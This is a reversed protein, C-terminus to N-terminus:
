TKFLTNLLETKKNILEDIRTIYERVEKLNAAREIRNEEPFIVKTVADAGCAIITQSEEIMQINYIGEMGPISYGVNEMNGVMNKQRYMYYPEMNLSDALARSQSFMEIIENQHIETYSDTNIIKEYLRSGRKISLGHVTLNDPKLEYVKRCTNRVDQLDEYPLGIIIDMNINKFGLNRAMHFKEAVDGSSHSRGILKLTKDNMTQPNVSIRDVNYKKMSALKNITISDPRGCEVTFEELAHKTIFNDYIRKMVREFQGDSVSTPTGGGFYVCQVKLNNEAIYEMTRDLEYILADIYKEVLDKAASISNSAFSCYLCKTPCFPMGIYLSITKKHNKIYKQEARAVEICLRIKDEKTISHKTFYSFIEEDTHSEMLKLAIKSPRIGILTGWPYEKKTLEKLFCFLSMRINEKKTLEGHFNYDRVKGEFGCNVSNENINVYYNYPEEFKIDMSSFYINFIQYVEYRYSMDNLKINIKM